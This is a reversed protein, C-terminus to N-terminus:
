LPRTRTFTPPEIGAAEASQFAAAEFIGKAMLSTAALRKAAYVASRAEHVSRDDPAALAAMEILEGALRTDGAEVLALSRAVLPAVGGALAAVERAVDRQRAPLLRAPNGDWWGGYTRWINRVVFEPEDYFPRLWPLALVDDPVQIDHIADEMTGDANLSEIVERVLHELAEATSTLVLEGRHAESVPLGHAPAVLSPSLAAMKRLAAAWEAPFRLVKQPNGCNPFNWILMDGVFLVGRGVWETWAHDDTEGRDHRLVFQEGGVELTMETAFTVDPDPTVTPLFASEFGVAAGANRRRSPGFQRRNIATNYGNTDRYRAFRGAINTHGVFRPRPRGHAEADALFAGAGGVHDVHGHTYVVTHVPDDTWGRIARVVAQGTAEGSADFVVLGDATRVVWSHSFAEVVALDDAVVSLELNVRNTPVDTRRTDIVDNAYSILDM